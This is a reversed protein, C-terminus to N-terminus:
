RCAAVPLVPAASEIVVASGRNADRLAAATGAGAIQLHSAAGATIRVAASGSSALTNDALSVCLSATDRASVDLATSATTVGYADHMSLVLTASGSVRIAALVAAKGPRDGEGFTCRDFTVAGHNFRQEMSLESGANGAFTCRSFRVDGVEQLLAGAEFTEDGANKVQLGDFIVDRINNANLGMAAGGDVVINEFTAGNVHRVYLAANCPATTNADFEGACRAAKVRGNSGSAILNMNAIRLNSSQAIRLAYNAAGRITGGSGGKQGEGTIAFKGHVRDLVLGEALKEGEASASQLTVDVGSDRFDVAAGDRTAVFSGPDSLVFKAVRNVVLGRRRGHIEIRDPFAVSATAPVGDIFVADGAADEVRLPSRNRFVIAGRVQNRIDVATNFSGRMPFRDFTVDGEVGSLAVGSGEGVAEIGGGTVAVAGTHNQLVVAWGRQSTRFWLTRLTVKGTSGYAGVGVSGRDAVITCGAVVNDGSLGITGRITPGPGQRAPVLADGEASGMLTQGKRLTVSEDYPTSTETVYITDAGLGMAIRTFPRAATGDGDPPATNDVFAVSGAMVPLALLLVFAIVTVRM